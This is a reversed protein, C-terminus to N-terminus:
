GLLFTTIGHFLGSPNEPPSGGQSNQQGGRNSGRESNRDSTESEESSQGAANSQGRDERSNRTQQEEESGSESEQPETQVPQNDKQRKIESQSEPQRKNKQEATEKKRPQEEQGTQQKQEPGTEQSREKNQPQQEAESSETQSRENQSSQAQEPQGRQTGQTQAQEEQESGQRQARAEKGRDEQSRQTNEQARELGQNAQDPTKRMVEELIEDTSRKSDNDTQNEEERSADTLRQYDEVLRRATDSDGKQAVARAETLRRQAFKKRKEQKKEPNFTMVLSAREVARQLGYMPNGPIAGRFPPPLEDKKQLGSPLTENRPEKTNDTTNEGTETTNTATTFSYIGTSTTSISDSVEASWNVQEGLSLDEIQHTVQGPAVRDRTSIARGNRLFEVSISRNDTDNVSITLNVDVGERDNTDNVGTAGNEPKVVEVAPMSNETTNERTETTNIASYASEANLLGSGQTNQNYRLETAAYETLNKLESPSLDQDESLLLAATGSVHPTAMSTGSKEQFTGDNWTSTIQEGPAVVDPKVRGDATPGRSSFRSIESNSNVSGVTIADEACGPISITRNEPWENGAAAVVTVGQAVASNVAESVADTGDCKDTQGGFSLSIVEANNNVAWEIGEIVDSGSGTGNADLVKVDFLDANYSVGQFRSDQSAIIGAVHTGHGNRDDTGQGTYDVEKEVQLARNDNDIGTDLVAVDVSRGAVNEQHVPETNIQSVSQDLNTEMVFDPQVERVFSRNALNRAAVKPIEVAVGDILSYEHNINGEANRIAERAQDSPAGETLIIVSVRETDPTNDLMQDLEPSVQTSGLSFLLILAVSLVTTKNM